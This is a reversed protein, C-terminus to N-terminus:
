GWLNLHVYVPGAGGSTAITSTAGGVIGLIRGWVQAVNSAATTAATQMSGGASHATVLKGNVDSSAETAVIKIATCPGRYAAWAGGGASSVGISAALVGCIRYAGAADDINATGVGYKGNVTYVPTGAALSTALSNSVYVADVIGETEDFQARTGTPHVQETASAAYLGQATVPAPYMTM